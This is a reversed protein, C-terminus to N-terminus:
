GIGYMSETKKMIKLCEEANEASSAFDRYRMLEKSIIKREIDGLEQPTSSKLTPEVIIDHIIAREKGPYKRLVRGRRQVYERPNGSNDLIIAIRAPPVDVGEDLCKMSVLAHFIGISFQEILYDRESKGCFRDESRTGEKETFKHQIINKTNLLDQVIRIQQPSCYILCHRIPQIEDLIKEFVNIKNSANRIIKQRKILLLTYIEDKEDENKSCYYAKSIKRTETQYKELEEQTLFTFHPVYIYPTLYGEDIAAKLSFEFVVDGFYEFIKETGKDDFWRKPTASLGLRFDYDRILGIRRQLAGIGHVEDVILFIKQSPARQKSEQIMTIFDNSSFTTHTTFVTLKQNVGNEVDLLADVLKDKWKNQSSDAILKKGEIGFKTAEKLWQECLHMYPSSIITVLKSETKALHDLCSLATFTKGTGTAMELIGKKDNEIWNQAAKKQYDRLGISAFTKSQRVWKDLDLEEISTPAIRIFKEEIAKPIDIIRTRKPTGHWFKQFKQLDAEFYPKESNIWSRFVKFEEINSHWGRASENDSGSFSIKDGDIDELIGVKQHFIGVKNVDESTLPIGDNDLVLAIKIKLNGKAVMWGLARVHDKVFEDELNDLEKLMSQELIKEPTEIAARIAIIDQEQFIAGTILRINGGNRILGSIGKAAASLSTSSFFGTLRDYQTSVSLAPAYFDVLINDIDSDYANKLPLDRLNM